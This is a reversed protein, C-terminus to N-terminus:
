VVWPILKESEYAMWWYKKSERRNSRSYITSNVRRSSIYPALPSFHHNSRARVGFIWRKLLQSYLSFLRIVWLLVKTVDFQHQAYAFGPHKVRLSYESNVLLFLEFIWRAKPLAAWRTTMSAGVNPKEIARLAVYFSGPEREERESYNLGHRLPLRHLYDHTLGKLQDYAGCKKTLAWRACPWQSM